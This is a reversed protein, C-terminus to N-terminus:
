AACNRRQKLRWYSELLTRYDIAESITRLLFRLYVERNKVIIPMGKMASDAILPFARNLVIFDVNVGAIREIDAWIESEEEDSMSRNFYVAIDMDSEAHTMAKATSGFLFAMVVADRGSFYEALMKLIEDTDTM